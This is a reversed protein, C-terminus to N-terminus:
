ASDIREEVGIAVELPVTKQHLPIVDYPSGHITLAAPNSGKTM